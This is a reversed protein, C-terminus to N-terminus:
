VSLYMFLIQEKFYSKTKVLLQKKGKGVPDSNKKKLNSLELSTHM